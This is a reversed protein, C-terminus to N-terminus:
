FGRRARAGRTRLALVVAGITAATLVCGIAGYYLAGFVMTGVFARLWGLDFLAPASDTTTQPDDADTTPAASSLLDNQPAESSPAGEPISVPAPEASEASDAPPPSALEPTAAAVSSQPAPAATPREQEAASPDPATIM